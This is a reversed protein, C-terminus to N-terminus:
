SPLSFTSKILSVFILYLSTPSYLIKLNSTKNHSPSPTRLSGRSTFKFTLSGWRM